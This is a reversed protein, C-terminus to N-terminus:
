WKVRSGKRLERRDKRGRERKRGLLLSTSMLGGRSRWDVRWESRKAERQMEKAPHRWPISWGSHKQLVPGNRGDVASWTQLPLILWKNAPHWTGGGCIVAVSILHGEWGEGWVGRGPNCTSQGKEMNKHIPGNIMPTQWLAAIRDASCLPWSTINFKNTRWLCLCKLYQNKIISLVM